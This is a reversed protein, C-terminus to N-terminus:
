RNETSLTPSRPPASLSMLVLAATCEDMSSGAIFDSKIGYQHYHQDVATSGATSMSSNVPRRKRGPRHAFIFSQNNIRHNNLVHHQHKAQHYHKPQNTLSQHYYFQISKNSNSNNNNIRNNNILQYYQVSNLLKM